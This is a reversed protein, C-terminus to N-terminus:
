GLPRIRKLPARDLESDLKMSKWRAKLNKNPEVVKPTDLLNLLPRYENDTSHIQRVLITIVSALSHDEVEKLRQYQKLRRLTWTASTENEPDNLASRRLITPSGVPNSSIDGSRAVLGTLLERGTHESLKLILMRFGFNNDDFKGAFLGYVVDSEAFYVRGVLVIGQYNVLYSPGDYRDSLYVLESYISNDLAHARFSQYFGALNRQRPEKQRSGATMFRLVADFDTHMAAAEHTAVATVSRGIRHALYAHIQDIADHDIPTRGEDGLDELKFALFGAIFQAAKSRPQDFRSNGFCRWKRITKPDPLKKRDSHDLFFSMLQHHLCNEATEPCANSGAASKPCPNGVARILTDVWEAKSPMPKRAM